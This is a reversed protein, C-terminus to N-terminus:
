TLNSKNGASNYACVILFDFTKKFQLINTINMSQKLVTFLRYNVPPSVIKIYLDYATFNAIYDYEPLPHELALFYNLASLHPNLIFREGSM